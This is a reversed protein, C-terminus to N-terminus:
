KLFGDRMEFMTRKIYSLIFMNKIEKLVKYAGKQYIEKNGFMYILTCISGGSNTNIYKDERGM